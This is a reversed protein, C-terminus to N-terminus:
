LVQEGKQKVAVKSPRETERVQRQRERLNALVSPKKEMTEQHETRKKTSMGTEPNGFGAEQEETQVKTQEKTREEMFADLEDIIESATKRITDMSAKLAKTDQSGSWSALYPISYDSTDLRYHFLVTYAIAEAELEKTQRSKQIGEAKMNDRDHLRAHSVEHITTKLTQNESMGFRIM